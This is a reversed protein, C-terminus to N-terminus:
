GGQEQLTLKSTVSTVGQVKAAAATAIKEQDETEIFGALTVQGTAAKGFVVIDATQLGKTKYLTQKVRKSLARNAARADKKSTPAQSTTAADTDAGSAATQAYAATSLLATIAIGALWKRSNM